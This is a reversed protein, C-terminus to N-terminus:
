SNSIAFPFGKTMFRIYATVYKNAAKIESELVEIVARWDDAAAAWKRKLMLVTARARLPAERGGMIGILRTLDSVAHDLKGRALQRFM